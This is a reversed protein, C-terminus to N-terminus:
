AKNKIKMKFFHFNIKFSLFYISAKQLFSLDKLLFTKLFLNKMLEYFPLIKYIKKEQYNKRNIFKKQKSLGKTGYIVFGENLTKFKGKLLLDLDFIWDVAWYDKSLDVTENIIERRILSYLINHSIHRNYFFDKIRLYLNNDLNFSNVKNPNDEYYFKSSSSIYDKNNELFKVNHEIYDQSILDDAANWRFYKGTSNDLVFKFNEAWSLEKKQNFFKIRKDTKIIKELYSETGDKSCNNSIIIELNQYTQNLLANLSKSLNINNKSGNLLGDKVPLGISVLPGM